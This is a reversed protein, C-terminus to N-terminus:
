ILALAVLGACESLSLAFGALDGSVGGLTGAAWRMALAYALTVAWLANIGRGLWFGGIILAILYIALIALRQAPTGDVKAYESHGLPRLTTVCFASGCRSIVPILVLVRLDAQGLGQAAGYSVLMLLGLSVAGFAGLHSDKLIELRRELPRWSLIADCTDMYGDLHMFGTLLWPLAVIVAAALPIPLLHRALMALLAWIGGIIAGLVPLCVLMMGRADEDWPRYPCPIASFMGLAMFLARFARKM